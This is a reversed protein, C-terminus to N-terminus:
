LTFLIYTMLYSILLYEDKEAEMNKAHYRKLRAPSNFYSYVANRELIAFQKRESADINMELFSYESFRYRNRTWRDTSNETINKQKKKNPVDHVNCVFILSQMQKHLVFWFLSFLIQKKRLIQHIYLYM